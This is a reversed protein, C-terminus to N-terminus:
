EAPYEDYVKTVEYDRQLKYNRVYLDENEEDNDAWGYRDLADGLLFDPDDVITEDEHVLTRDEVYFRLTECEYEPLEGFSEVRIIKPKPNSKELHNQINDAVVTAEEGPDDEPGYEEVLDTYKRIEEKNPVPKDPVKKKHTAMADTEEIDKKEYYNKYEERALEIEEDVKKKMIVYTIGAGIGGGMLIGLLLNRM